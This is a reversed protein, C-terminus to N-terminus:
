WVHRFNMASGGGLSPPPRLCINSDAAVSYGQHCPLQRIAGPPCDSTSRMLLTVVTSEIEEEAGDDWAGRARRGEDTARLRRGQDRARRGEGTVGPGEGRAGRGDSRPGDSAVGDM